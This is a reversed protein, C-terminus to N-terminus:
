QDYFEQYYKSKKNESNPIGDLAGELVILVERKWEDKRGLPNESVFFYVNRNLLYYYEMEENSRYPYLVLQNAKDLAYMLMKKGNQLTEKLCNTDFVEKKIVEQIIRHVKMSNLNSDVFLSHKLLKSKIFDSDRLAKAMDKDSLEPKGQNLVEVPIGTPDLFALVHLAKRLSPSGDAFSDMNKKFIKTIKLRSIDVQTAADSAAKRDIVDITDERLFDLYKIIDCNSIKLYNAIQDLSLAHGDVEKVIMQAINMQIDARESKNVLFEVGEKLCFKELNVHKPPSLSSIQNKLEDENLRSTIIMSVKAKSIWPGNIIQKASEPFIEEDLNDIVILFQHDKHDEIYKTVINVLINGDIDDKKPCILDLRLAIEHLHNKITENSHAVIWYIGGSFQKKLDCATRLAVSTKGMGGSGSITVISNAENQLLDNINKLVHSRGCFHKNQNPLNSIYKLANKEEEGKDLRGEIGSIKSKNEDSQYKIASIKTDQSEFQEQIKAQFNRLQDDVKKIIDNIKSHGIKEIKEDVMAKFENFITTLFSDDFIQIRNKKWETLETKAKWAKTKYSNDMTPDKELSEVMQIMLDFCKSFKDPNWKTLDCHAWENRVSVRIREALQPVRDHAVFRGYRKARELINLIASSDFSDITTTNDEEERIFNGKKLYLKALQHHNGIAHKDSNNYNFGFDRFAGYHQYSRRHRDQPLSNSNRTESINFDDDLDTYLMGLNKNVKERLLPLLVVNLGIGVATWGREENSLNRVSAAM